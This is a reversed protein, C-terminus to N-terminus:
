PEVAEVAVLLFSVYKAPVPVTVTPGSAATVVVLRARVLPLVGEGIPVASVKVAVTVPLAGVPLTVNKAPDVVRPVLVKFPEKCALRVVM